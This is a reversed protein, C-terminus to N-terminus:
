ISSNLDVGHENESQRSEEFSDMIESPMEVTGYNENINM